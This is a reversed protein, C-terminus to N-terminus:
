AADNMIEQYTSVRKIAGNELEVIQTCNELTTLRHAVVLITVDKNLSDISRIVARETEIDLASTAEDFVIVDAQKYLARAIGIRQRQGGSLRIGREGVRTQYKLPWAEITDAIQAQRAAQMVRDSDIDEKPVGFAINEEITTDALFIVQAVHAIHAQWARYDTVTIPRGDVELVGQTPVLLGMVVDLLTSKGSGTIGIFGFRSGRPITLDVANLIWPGDNSYRMSVQKLVIRHEFPLLKAPPQGAHGPLPQDLLVLTDQLSAQGTRIAAWSAYVQQLVPLIRQIGLSLAGLIPIAVAIGGPQRSMGYAFGAILIMGLSEIGYRPSFAIILSNGQARRLLLDAQRYIKCYMEQTGDILVDRIGGLGEQLAKVVQTSEDAIRSSDARLRKGTVGIMIGYLLGFGVLVTVGIVPDILLLAVLILTLMIMSSLLMIMPQITSYITTNAKTAISSIVESSHRGVHLTYPQYLTRRYMSISIDAGIAFSLRVTGWLLAIRAIGALLAAVGFIATLPLLLDDPSMAGTLDVLPRTLRHNFVQEPATYVALFPVVAGIGVMEAISAFVMLLILLACQIQRWSSMHRWLRRLLSTM